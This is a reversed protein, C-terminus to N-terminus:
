HSSRGCQGGGGRHVAARGKKAQQQPSARRRGSRCRCAGARVLSRMTQSQRRAATELGRERRDRTFNPIESGAIPSRDGTPVALADQMPNCRAAAGGASHAASGRRRKKLKRALVLLFAKVLTPAACRPAATGPHPLLRCCAATRCWQLARPAPLCRLLIVAFAYREGMTPLM